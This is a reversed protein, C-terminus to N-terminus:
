CSRTLTVSMILDDSQTLTLRGRTKRILYRAWFCDQLLTLYNELLTHMVSASGRGRVYGHLSYLYVKIEFHTLQLGITILFFLDVELAFKGSNYSM